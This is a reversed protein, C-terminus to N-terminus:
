KVMKKVENEFYKKIQAWEVKKLMEPMNEPEADDFYILSKMIHISTTALNKYKKDYLQIAKGLPAAEKCIFYLDVFDRKNGRSAIAAIKM